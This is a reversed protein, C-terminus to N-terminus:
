HLERVAYVRLVGNTGISVMLQEDAEVDHANTFTKCLDFRRSYPETHLHPQYAGVPLETISPRSTVFESLYQPKEKYHRHILLTAILLTCGVLVARM